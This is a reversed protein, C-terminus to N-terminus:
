STPALFGLYFFFVYLSIRGTLLVLFINKKFNMCATPHSWQNWVEEKSVEEGLRQEVYDLIKTIM